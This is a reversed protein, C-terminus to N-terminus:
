VAGLQPQDQASLAQAEAQVFASFDYHHVARRAIIALLKFFQQGSNPFFLHFQFVLLPIELKHQQIQVFSFVLAQICKRFHRFPLSLASIVSPFFGCSFVHIM